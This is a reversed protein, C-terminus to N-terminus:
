TNLSLVSIGCKLKEFGQVIKIKLKGHHPTLNLIKIFKILNLKWCCWLLILATVSGLTFSYQNGWGLLLYLYMFGTTRILALGWKFGVYLGKLDM